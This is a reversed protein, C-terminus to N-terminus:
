ETIILKQTSQVNNDEVIQVMYTGPSYDGVLLEITADGSKLSSSFVVRGSLDTVKLEGTTSTHVAIKVKDNAPNPSISLQNQENEKISLSAASSMDPAKNDEEFVWEGNKNYVLTYSVQAWPCNTSWTGRTIRYSTNYKFMGIAPTCTSSTTQTLGNFGPFATPAGNGPWWCPIVTSTSSSVSYVPTGSSNLEDIFWMYGFGAPQGTTITPTATVQLYSPNSPNTVISFAPNNNEVTIVKCDSATCGTNTNSAVLCYTTTTEPCVTIPNPNGSPDISYPLLTSGQYWDWWTFKKGGHGTLQVCSGWCITEDPGASVVTPLCNLQIIVATEIWGYCGNAVALKIKYYAGCPLGLTSPFTFTGPTGTYWNSWIPSGTVVGASTCPEIGWYYNTSTGATLSGTFTLPSGDCFKTPGTISPTLATPSLDVDDLFVIHSNTANDNSWQNNLRFEIRDYGVAAEAATLTFTGSFQTWTLQTVSSSVFIVKETTCNGSKRLVAEIKNNPSPTKPTITIPCGSSYGDIASAWFSINYTCNAGPNQSLTGLVSEGYYQNGSINGTGSFGVYRYTGSTRVNRNAWKSLPVTVNNAATVNDCMTARSDFLDPSGLAFNNTCTSCYFGACGRGWSTAYSVQDSSTPITGQEFGPNLILNQANTNQVVLLAFLLMAM